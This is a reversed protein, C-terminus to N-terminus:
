ARDKAEETADAPLCCTWCVIQDYVIMRDKPDWIPRHCWACWYQREEAADAYHYTNCRTM